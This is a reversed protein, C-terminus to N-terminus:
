QLLSAATKGSVGAKLRLIELLLRSSGRLFNPNIKYQAPKLQEAMPFQSGRKANLESELIPSVVIQM